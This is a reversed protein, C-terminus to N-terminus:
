IKEKNWRSYVTYRVITVIIIFVFTQLLAGIVGIRTLEMWGAEMCYFEEIITPSPYFFGFAHYFLVFPLQVALHCLTMLTLDPAATNLMLLPSFSHTKLTQLFARRREGDGSLEFGTILAHILTALMSFIILINRELTSEHQMETVILRKVFLFFLIFLVGHYILDKLAFWLIKTILTKKKQRRLIDGQNPEYQSAHEDLRDIDKM